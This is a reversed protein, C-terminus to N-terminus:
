EMMVLNRTTTGTGFTFTYRLINSVRGYYVNWTAGNSSEFEAAVFQDGRKLNTRHRRGKYAGVVQSEIGTQVRLRGYCLISCDQISAFAESEEMQEAGRLYAALLNRTNVRSHFAGSLKGVDCPFLPLSVSESAVDTDGETTEDDKM